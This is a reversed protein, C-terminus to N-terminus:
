WAPSGAVPQGPRVRGAAVAQNVLAGAWHELAWALERNLEARTLYQWEDFAPADPLNLGDLFDGRNLECATELGERCSQCSCVGPTSDGQGSEHAHARVAQILERFKLVDLEVSAVESWRVSERNTEFSDSPLVRTLSGLARRLNAMAHTQDFEPWFLAALKERSCGRSNLSLYALLAAIKRTEFHIQVGDLEAVPPGLWAFKLM